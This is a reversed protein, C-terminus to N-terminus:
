AGATGAESGAVRKGPPDEMFNPRMMNGVSVEIWGASSPLAASSRPKSDIQNGSCVWMGTLRRVGHGPPASRGSSYQCVCSGKTASVATAATVVRILTAVPIQRMMSRSGIVVALSTALRSIIEPPRNMKPMPAPHFASSISCWPATKLSRHFITRSFISAIFSIQVFSSASYWPWNTSKSFIQLQGFGTWFGCGGIM